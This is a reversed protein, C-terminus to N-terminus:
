VGATQTGAPTPLPEGLKKWHATIAEAQGASNLMHLKRKVM